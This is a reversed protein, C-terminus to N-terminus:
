PRVYFTAEIEVAVGFPMVSAGVATRAHRGAQGFVDIFLESAGNVVLPVEIFDPTCNVYGTVKVLKIVRDLDGGLAEHACALVNIACLRAAAQGQKLDLERGVKGIYQWDGSWQPIQGSVYVWEGAKSYGEIKALPSVTPKPLEIGLEALRKGVAGAYRQSDTTM